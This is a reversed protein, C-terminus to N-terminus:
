KRRAGGINHRHGYYCDVAADPGLDAVLSAHQLEFNLSSETNLRLLCFAAACNLGSRPIQLYAHDRRKLTMWFSLWPPM